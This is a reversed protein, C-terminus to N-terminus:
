YEEVIVGADKLADKYWFLSHYLNLYHYSGEKTEKLEKQIKYYDEKWCKIKKKEAISNNEVKDIVELSQEEKPLYWIIDGNKKVLAVDIINGQDEKKCWKIGSHGAFGIIKGEQYIM